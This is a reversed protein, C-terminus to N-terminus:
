SLGLHRWYDLIGFHTVSAYHRLDYKRLCPSPGCFSGVPFRLARWRRRKFSQNCSSVHSILSACHLFIWTAKTTGFLRYLSYSVLLSTSQKASIVKVEISFTFRSLHLHKEFFYQLCQAQRVVIHENKQEMRWSPCM